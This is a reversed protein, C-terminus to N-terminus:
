VAPDLRDAADDVGVLESVQGSAVLAAADQEALELLGLRAEVQLAAGDTLLAALNAPATRAPRSSVVAPAATSPAPSAASAASTGAAQSRRM